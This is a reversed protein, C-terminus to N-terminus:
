REDHAEKYQRLAEDAQDLWVAAVGEDDHSNWTVAEGLAGALTEALAKFKALEAKLEAIRETLGTDPYQCRKAGCCGEEGCSGCIPCYPSPESDVQLQSIDAELKEIYDAAELCKGHAHFYPRQNTWENEERLREILAKSDTM